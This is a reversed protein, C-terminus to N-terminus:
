LANIRANFILDKIKTKDETSLAIEAVDVNLIKDIDSYILEHPMLGVGKVHEGIYRCATLVVKFREPRRFLDVRNFLQVRERKSLIQYKALAGCENNVLTSVQECDVSITWRKYDEKNKFGNAIIAFRVELPANNQAAENLSHLGSDRLWQGTTRTGGGFWENLHHNAGVYSLIVFMASPRAEMLGKKFEMWVREPTLSKFEGSDVIQRMLEITDEHITFETYRAAFRAIRLVRVPDEAFAESTHRLIKNKLDEQGGYPDIVNNNEDMAMSNITLDRRFLDQALTVTPDFDVKFGNYGPSVKRENRALAYEEGTIPHLFVPFDAGVQQFNLELMAETTAGTVVYDRDRSEIGLLRDRVAGGVLYTKM